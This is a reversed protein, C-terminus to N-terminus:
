RHRRDDNAEDGECKSEACEEPDKPVFNLAEEGRWFLGMKDEAIDPLRQIFFLLVQSALFSMVSCAGSAHGSFPDFFVVTAESEDM